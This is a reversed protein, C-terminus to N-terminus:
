VAVSVSAGAALAQQLSATAAQYSVLADQLDQLV